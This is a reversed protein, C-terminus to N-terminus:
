IEAMVRCLNEDLYFIIFTIFDEVILHLNFGLTSSHYYDTCFNPLVMSTDLFPIHHYESTVGNLTVIDGSFWGLTLIHYPYSKNWLLTINIYTTSNYLITSMSIIASIERSFIRMPIHIGSGFKSTSLHLLIKLLYLFYM